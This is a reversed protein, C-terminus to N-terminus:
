NNVSIKRSGAGVTNPTISRIYYLKRTKRRKHENGPEARYRMDLPEAEVSFFFMVFRFDKKVVVKVVVAGLWIYRTIEEKKM